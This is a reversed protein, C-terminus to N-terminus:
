KVKFRSENINGYFECDFSEGSKLTMKGNYICADKKSRSFTSYEFKEKVKFKEILDCALTHNSPEGDISKFVIIEKM